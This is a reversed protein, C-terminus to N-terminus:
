KASPASGGSSTSAVDTSSLSMDSTLTDIAVSTSRPPALRASLDCTATNSARGDRMTSENGRTSASAGAFDLRDGVYQTTYSTRDFAAAPDPQASTSVLELDIGAHSLGIPAAVLSAFALRALRKLSFPM